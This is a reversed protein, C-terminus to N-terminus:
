GFGRNLCPVCKCLQWMGNYVWSYNIIYSPGIIGPYNPIITESIWPVLDMPQKTLSLVAFDFDVEDRSVNYIRVMDRIGLGQLDAILTFQLVRGMSSSAGLVDTSQSYLHALYLRGLEYTTLILSKLDDKSTTALLRARIILIPRGFRDLSGLFRLLPIAPPTPLYPITNSRWVASKV